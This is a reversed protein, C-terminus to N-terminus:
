VMLHKRYNNRVYFNLTMDKVALGDTFVTLTRGSLSYYGSGAPSVEYVLSGCLNEYTLSGATVEITFSGTNLVFVFNTDPTLELYDISGTAAQKVLLDAATSPLLAASCDIIEVVMQPQSLSIVSTTGTPSGGNSSLVKYNFQLTKSTDVWPTVTTVLSNLRKLKNPAPTADTDLQFWNSYTDGVVWPNLAFFVERSQGYQVASVDFESSVTVSPDVTTGDYKVTQVPAQFTNTAADKLRADSGSPVYFPTAITIEYFYIKFASDFVAQQENVVKLNGTWTKM